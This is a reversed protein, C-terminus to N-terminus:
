LVSFVDFIQVLDTLSITHHWSVTIKCIGKSQTQGKRNSSRNQVVAERCRQSQGSPLDVSYYFKFSLLMNYWSVRHPLAENSAAILM